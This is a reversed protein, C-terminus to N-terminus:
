LISKIVHHHQGRRVEILVFGEVSNLQILDSDAHFSQIMQGLSNYIKIIDGPRTGKLYKTSNSYIVNIPVVEQFNDEIASPLIM